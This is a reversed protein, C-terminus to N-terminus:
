IQERSTPPCIEEIQQRFVSLMDKGSTKTIKITAGRKQYEKLLLILWSRYIYASNLAWTINPADEIVTKHDFHALRKNRFNTMEAHYKMWDSVSIGIYDAIMEKSFQKLKAGEPIPLGGITRKWHSEQSNTGFISCWATVAESYLIDCISLWAHEPRQTKVLHDVYICARICDHVLHFQVLLPDIDKKM